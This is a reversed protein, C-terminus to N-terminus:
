FEDETGTMVDEMIYFGCEEIRENSHIERTNNKNRMNKNLTGDANHTVIGKNHISLAGEVTNDYYESNLWKEWTMGEEASYTIGDITFTIIKKVPNHKNLKEIYNGLTTNENVQATGYQERANKAHEIIGDNQVAGIAVVALILLVIITIILAILTIGKQNKQRRM